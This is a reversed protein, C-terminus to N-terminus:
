SHQVDETQSQHRKIRQSLYSAVKVAIVERSHGQRTWDWAKAIATNADCANVQSWDFEVGFEVLTEYQGVTLPKQKRFKKSKKKRWKPFDELESQDSQDPKIFAEREAITMSKLSRIRSQRRAM